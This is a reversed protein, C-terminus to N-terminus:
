ILYPDYKMYGAKLMLRGLLVTSALCISKGRKCTLWHWGNSNVQLDSVNRKLNIAKRKVTWVVTEVRLDKKEVDAKRGAAKLSVFAM